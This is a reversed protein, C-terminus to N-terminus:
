VEHDHLTHTSSSGSRHLQSDSGVAPVQLGDIAIFALVIIPQATPLGNLQFTAQHGTATILILNLRDQQWAGLSSGAASCLTIRRGPMDTSSLWKQFYLTLLSLQQTPHCTVVLTPHYIPLGSM